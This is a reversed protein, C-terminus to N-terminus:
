TSHLLLRLSRPASLSSKSNKISQLNVADVDDNEAKRLNILAKGNEGRL